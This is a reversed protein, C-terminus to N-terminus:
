KPAPEVDWQCIRYGGKRELMDLHIHGQHYSDSGPGLVTTFSSCASQRIADRFEKSVTKDTFDIISGNALKLGRLDLANARAHESLTSGPVRDRDRCEYSTGAVITRAPSDFTAAAAPAIEERVWRAVAEAMPCRLTAVPALAVRQGDKLVVAELTVLDEGGCSGPGSISALPHTTAVDSTLRAQCASPAPPATTRQQAVSALPLCCAASGLVALIDRGRMRTETHGAFHPM